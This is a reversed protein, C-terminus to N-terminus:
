ATLKRQALLRSSDYHRGGYHDPIASMLKGAIVGAYVQQM